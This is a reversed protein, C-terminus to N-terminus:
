RSTTTKTMSITASPRKATRGSSRRRIAPSRALPKALDDLQNVSSLMNQGYVVSAGTKPLFKDLESRHQRMVVIGLSSVLLLIVLLGGFGFL